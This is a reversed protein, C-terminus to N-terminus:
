SINSMSIDPDNDAIGASIVLSDDLHREWCPFRGKGTYSFDIFERISGDFCPYSPRGKIPTQFLVWRRDKGCWGM